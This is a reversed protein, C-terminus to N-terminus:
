LYMSSYMTFFSGDHLWMGAMGLKEINCLFTAELKEQVVNFLRSHGLSLALM